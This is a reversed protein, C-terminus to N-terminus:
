GIGAQACRREIERVAHTVGDEDRIKEGMSAANAQLSPHTKMERLAGALWDPSLQRCSVPKRPALGRRHLLKGWSEQDGFHWVVIQPVGARLASATTGAGGHHIVGAARAFLFSHPVYEVRKITDPLVGEGLQNWGAQLVARMGARRVGECLVETQKRADTGTMSGFTIVVPKDGAALFSVLDAAPPATPLDLFWYGTQVVKGEWLPDPPVFSPSVELLSLLPSAGVEHFLQRVRPLGAAALVRNYSPDTVRGVVYRFIGTLLRNVIPGFDSGDPAANRAPLGGHFVQGTIRPKRHVRAAAYATVDIQHHVILDADATAELVLPLSDLLLGEFLATGKGVARLPNREKMVQEMNSRLTREFVEMARPTNSPRLPIDAEEARRAHLPAAVLYVEHGAQKLGRALAIFPRVDGESGFSAVAIRM